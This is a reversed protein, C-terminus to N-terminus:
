ISEGTAEKIAGAGNPNRLYILVFCFLQTLQWQLPVGLASLPKELGCNGLDVAMSPVLM